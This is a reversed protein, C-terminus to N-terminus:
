TEQWIAARVKQLAPLARSFFVEPTEASMKAYAGRLKTNGRFDPVDDFQACHEDLARLHDLLLAQHAADQKGHTAIAALLVDEEVRRVAAASTATKKRADAFLARVSATASKATANM